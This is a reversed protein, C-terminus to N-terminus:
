DTEAPAFLLAMRAFDEIPMDLGIGAERRRQELVAFRHRVTEKTSIGQGYEEYSEFVEEAYIIEDALQDDTMDEVRLRVGFYFGEYAM